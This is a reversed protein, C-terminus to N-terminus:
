QETQAKRQQRQGRLHAYDLVGANKVFFVITGRTVSVFGPALGYVGRHFDHAGDAM